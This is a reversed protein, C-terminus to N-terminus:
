PTVIASAIRPKTDKEYKYTVSLQSPEDGAGPVLAGEAKVHLAEFSVSALKLFAENNQKLAEGSLAQFSSLLERRAQDLLAKQDALQGNADQLRTEASARAQQSEALAQRVTMGEQRELDLQRRLEEATAEARQSHSRSRGGVWLGALLGGLLLGIAFGFALLIIESM